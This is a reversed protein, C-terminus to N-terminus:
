KGRRRRGDCKDNWFDAATSNAGIARYNGRTLRGQNPAGSMSGAPAYPCCGPTGFSLSSFLRCRFWLSQHMCSSFLAASFIFHLCCFSLRSSYFASRCILCNYHSLHPNIVSLRLRYSSCLQCHKIQLSQPDSPCPCYACKLPM